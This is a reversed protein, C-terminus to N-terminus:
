YDFKFNRLASTSTIKYRNLQFRNLFIETDHMNRAITQQIMCIEQLLRNYCAYKNCYGTTDHMNRAITQTDRM